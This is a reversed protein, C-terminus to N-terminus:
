KLKSVASLTHSWGQSSFYRCITSCALISCACPGGPRAAGGLSSSPAGPPKSAPKNPRPLGSTLNPSIWSASSSLELSEEGPGPAFFCGASACGLCPAPAFSASCLVESLGSAASLAAFLPPRVFCVPRPKDNGSFSGASSLSLSSREDGRLPGPAESEAASIASRFRNCGIVSSIEPSSSMACALEALSDKPVLGRCNGGRFTPPPAPAKLSTAPLDASESGGLPRAQPSAAAPQEAFPGVCSWPEEPTPRATGLLESSNSSSAASAEGCRPPFAEFESDPFLPRDAFPPSAPWCRNSCLPWLPTFSLMALSIESSKGLSDSASDGPM